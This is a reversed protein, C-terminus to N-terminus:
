ETTICEVTLTGCAEPEIENLPPETGIEIKARTNRLNERALDLSEQQVKLSAIAYALDWFSNRVTRATSAITQRLEVDAIERQKISVMLQQRTGDISFNRLLPQSFGFSLGSNIQPS